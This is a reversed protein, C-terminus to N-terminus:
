GFSALQGTIIWVGGVRLLTFSILDTKNASGIPQVSNAWRITQAEGNITLATPIYATAGQALILTLTLARNNTVPVNILSVTFNSSLDSHYYVTGSSFDHVVAGSASNKTSLVESVQQITLLSSVSLTSVFASEAYLNGSIGTGGAVILAGSSKSTSPTTAQVTVANPVNGGTFALNATISVGNSYFYNNGYFSNARVNGAVGAGGAVILAGTSTSTSSTTAQITVPNPVNGGTFTLGTFASVGNSYFYNNSYFAGATVNGAVGAGGAVILAGSTTSVSSITNSTIIQQDTVTTPTGPEGRPGQTGVFYRVELIDSLQAPSGLLLNKGNLSYHQGPVLSLGNKTVLISAATRPRESLNFETQSSSTVLFTDSTVAVNTGVQVVNSFNNIYKM